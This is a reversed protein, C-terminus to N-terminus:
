HTKTKQDFAFIIGGLFNFGYGRYLKWSEYEKNFINNFQAWLNLNKTIRFEVGANLDTAGDLRASGGSPTLYQAGRWAFLDSKIWLDKLVQIRMAAKLELPILGFAKDYTTLDTYQNFNVGTHLSFKEQVTYGMEAGFHLAKMEPEYVVTFTEDYIGSNVNVFLPQNKYKHFGVKTSYTFHDGVSGKFGAYREEVWTNKLSSPPAIFPNISALYQYSTRRIYGIWGAQFIFRKDETSVEGMINPFMKFTKNDWSPRIGAQINIKPTKFLVSPSLYYFTNDSSSNGPKYKTLDFTIGLNVAFVKGVTKQLPANVYTNSESNDRDDNFVNVLIEPSYSLGFPTLNINHLGVGGTWTQFNQKLSDKPPISSLLPDRGYKFYRDQHMGLRANWELNKATQFFGKLDVGTNTFDQYLNKGDSSVHKAFINLGATKGDGFSFGAQVYPTKLSGFGAKIYSNLDWQGGSDIDLALPRLSGPQYAFLLNQNPIDYNLKAKTTDNAAPSANFNIKASEKLIPRFASTIDIKGKRTTDQQAQTFVFSLIGFGSLVIRYTSKKIM